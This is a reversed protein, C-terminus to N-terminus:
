MHCHSIEEQTRRPVIGGILDGRSFFSSTLFSNEIPQGTIKTVRPTASSKMMRLFRLSFLSFLSLPLSFLSLLLLWTIPIFQCSSCLLICLPDHIFDWSNLKNQPIPKNIHFFDNIINAERKLHWFDPLSASLTLSSSRYQFDSINNIQRLIIELIRM